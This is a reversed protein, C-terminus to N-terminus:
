KYCYESNSFRYQESESVQYMVPLLRHHLYKWYSHYVMWQVTESIKWKSIKNGYAFDGFYWRLIKWVYFLRQKEKSFKM